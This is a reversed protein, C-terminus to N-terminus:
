NVIVKLEDFTLFKNAIVTAWLAVGAKYIHGFIDALQFSPGILSKLNLYRLSVFGQSLQYLHYDSDYAVVYAKEKEAMRVIFPDAEGRAVIIKIELQRLIILLEHRLLSPLREEEEDDSSYLSNPRYPNPREYPKSKKIGDFIVIANSCKEKFL